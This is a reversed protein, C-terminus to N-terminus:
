QVAAEERGYDSKKERACLDEKKKYRKRKIERERKETERERNLIQYIGVPFRHSFEWVHGHRSIRTVEIGTLDHENKHLRVRTM